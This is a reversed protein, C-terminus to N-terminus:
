QGVSEICLITGYISSIQGGMITRSTDIYIAITDGANLSTTLSAASEVTQGFQGIYRDATGNKVLYIGTQGTGTTQGVTNFKYKGTRPTVFIGSSANYSFHTDYFVTDFKLVSNSAPTGNASLYYSLNISGQYPTISTTELLTVETANSAWTGPTSESIKVRGILRIAVSSYVANSVLQGNTTVIHATHTGSGASSTTIATGGPSASVEFTNTAKSVIWYTTGTSLGTPLSGTTTFQISDNNNLGHGSATVVGPSANSITVTFSEAVVSQLSGDDLLLISTGLKMTGSGDSDIAYVWLYQAISAQLNLTTGSAVTMSLAATVTRANFGGTTATPNRVGITVTGTGSSPDSSGNQQKLAITLINSGISTTLGLNLVENSAPTQSSTTSSPANSIFISM